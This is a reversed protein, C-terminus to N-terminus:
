KLIDINFSIIVRDEDSKNEEVSHPLYAPFILLDGDNVKISASNSNLENAKEAKARVHRNLINPNTAKFNGCNAPAKVYYAASLYNNPHTHEINFNGKKNIIAWMSTCIVKTENYEWGFKSFVDKIYNNIHAYFKNPINEKEKFDFPKSHWGNINSKKVGVNDKKNLEYVYKVLGENIKQYNDIQYKFVPQPFLKLINNNSM